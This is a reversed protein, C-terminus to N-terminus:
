LNSLISERSVETESLDVDSDDYKNKDIDEVMLLSFSIYSFLSSLIYIIKYPTRISNGKYIFSVFFATTTTIIESVKSFTSIFSGLIVSEQIGYIEMVMPPSAVLNGIVGFICLVVCLLFVFTNELFLNLLIGPIICVFTVIRILVLPSTKDSIYGLIPGFIIIGVAQFLSMVQLATGNIGIIAGIIRGTNVMFMVPFNLFLSAFAIRWFRASKIVQNIHRKQRIKDVEKEFNKNAIEKQKEEETKPNLDAVLEENPNTNIINTDIDHLEKQIETNKESYNPDDEKKYEFLFLYALITGVPTITFGAMYYRYTNEAIEPPYVQDKNVPDGHKNIIKEGSFGFIAATVITLIGLIGSIRGKKKPNYFTLNKQVLSTAIGAGIGMIVILVYCLYINQVNYFFINCFIIIFLGLLTTGMFGIKTELVGGLSRSFTMSFTLILGFFTGYHMTVFEQKIHIYSTIYVSFNGLPLIFAVGLYVFITGILSSLYKNKIIQPKRCLNCFTKMM